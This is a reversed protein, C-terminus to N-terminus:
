MKHHFLATYFRLTRGHSAAGGVKSVVPVLNLPAPSSFHYPLSRTFCPHLLRPLHPLSPLLFPLPDADVGSSIGELKEATTAGIDQAVSVWQAASIETEM